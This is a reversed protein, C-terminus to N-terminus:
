NNSKKWKYLQLDYKKRNVCNRYVFYIGTGISILFFIFFIWFLVRYKNEDLTKKVLKTEEINETCEEALPDVLKKRCKCSSYDLYEGINCSKHCECECNSPNWIFGKDCVGKDILKKCECRCKDKNWRQKNNCFIKDLRCICKCTKHWKMNRTGNTRSLLNFVKVHLNKFVDPICFKAFLDNIDNCNGNRKNTKISFPYFVPDNSNINVIEPRVKCEQNKMSICELANVGSLSGFFMLSSIFIQKILKFM